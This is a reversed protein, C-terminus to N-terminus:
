KSRALTVGIHAIAVNMGDRKIVILRLPTMKRRGIVCRAALPSIECSAATSWLKGELVQVILADPRPGCRPEFRVDVSSVVLGPSTPHVEVNFSRAGPAPRAIWCGAEALAAGVATDSSQSRGTANILRIGLDNQLTVRGTNASSKAVIGAFETKITDFRLAHGFGKAKSVRVVLGIPRDAGGSPDRLVLPAGSLGKNLNETSESKIPEFRVYQANADSIRMEIARLHTKFMSQAWVIPQRMVVSTLDDTGLRSLCRGSARGDIRAFALDLKQSAAKPERGTGENGQVDRWLFAHLAGGAEVVHRPMAIWCEGDVPSGFLWGQGKQGNEALVLVPEAQALCMPM